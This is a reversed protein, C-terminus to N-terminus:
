LLDFGHLISIKLLWLWLSWFDFFLLVTVGFDKESLFDFHM